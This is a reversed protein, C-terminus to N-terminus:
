FISVLGGLVLWWRGHDAHLRFAAGLMLAGSVIAWAAILFVFVVVTLDPWAVAAIAAGIDVVGELVLLGWPMGLRLAPWIAWLAFIGDVFTYAAFVLVLSLM